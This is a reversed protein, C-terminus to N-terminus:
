AVSFLMECVFENHEIKMTLNIPYLRNLSRM